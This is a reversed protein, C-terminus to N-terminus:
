VGGSGRKGARSNTERPSWAPLRPKAAPDLEVIECEITPCAGSAPVSARRPSSQPQLIYPMRLAPLQAPAGAFDFQVRQLEDKPSLGNARWDQQRRVSGGSTVVTEGSLQQIRAVAKDIVRALEAGDRANREERLHRKADEVSFWTRNRKAEGPNSLRLVACLHANVAAERSVSRAGSEGKRRRVYSTFPREEIRGHVGAEEYAELAAAQAHTLGPETSGKPFTWREGGRTRVLLFQIYGGQRRYCVAAVQECESMKRLQSLRVTRASAQQRPAPSRRVPLHLAFPNGM